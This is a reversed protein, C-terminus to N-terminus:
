NVNKQQDANQSKWTQVEEKAAGVATKTKDMLDTAQQGVQKAMSQAKGAASAAVQKTKDQVDMYRNKLDSRLERGPKPAFLLGAAAGILGGILVGKTLGGKSGANENM